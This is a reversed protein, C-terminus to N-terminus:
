GMSSSKSWKKWFDIIIGGLDYKGFRSEKPFDHHNKHYGEGWVLLGLITDNFVTNKRHSVSVITSGANWLIAAPALWAYILAYPDWFVLCMTIGWLIAYLFYYRHQNNYFPQRLLDVAYKPEVDSYMSLFHCYFWGKYKPSHPDEEQDTFRHHKRHVSVWSIASGTLGIGALYAFTYELWKPANWSRHSLLRHYTMTMGLCGNLFFIFITVAWMYLSGYFVLWVLSIHAIIQSFLLTNATLM